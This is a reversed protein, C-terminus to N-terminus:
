EPRNLTDGDRTLDADTRIPLVELGTTHILDDILATTGAALTSDFDIETALVWAHDEPRVISPSQAWMPNDVWPARDPWTLDALDNAGVEFLFYIRGTDGHLEFRPGTAIERSLVGTGPDPERHALGPPGINRPGPSGSSTRTSPHSARRM